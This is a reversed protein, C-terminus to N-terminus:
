KSDTNGSEDASVEEELRVFQVFNPSDVKYKLGTEVLEGRDNFEFMVICDSDQNAACLITGAENLQFHRPTRGLTSFIGVTTLLGSEPNISYTAISDHGRNSVLVFNGSTHVHIRGCTNYDTYGEPVTSIQQVLKLSLCQNGASQLCEKVADSDYQFVSILSSLENVVYAIRLNQHFELYRPGHPGKGEASPIENMPKFSGDEHNYQYQKITDRGLDPVFAIKGRFESDVFPDLVVSHAHPELQRNKLHDSRDRSAVKAPKIFGELPHLDGQDNLPLSGLSSDWYNVFLLKRGINDLTLYCTSTGHANQMSRPIMGGQNDISYAVIQGNEEISETCFYLTETNRDFRAFAPNMIKNDTCCKTMKGSEDVIYSTLGVKSPTGSPAHALNDFDTYSCCYLLDTM